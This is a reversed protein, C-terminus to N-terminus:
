SLATTVWGLWQSVTVCCVMPRLTEQDAEHYWPHEPDWNEHQGQLLTDVDLKYLSPLSPSCIWYLIISFCMWFMSVSNGKLDLPVCLTHQCLPYASKYWEQHVMNSMRFSIILIHLAWMWGCVQDECLTAWTHSFYSLGPHLLHVTCHVRPLSSETSPAYLWHQGLTGQSGWSALSRNLLSRAMKSVSM